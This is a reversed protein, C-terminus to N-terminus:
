TPANSDALAAALRTVGDVLGANDYYAFSLRLHNRLGHRSSFRVGPRFSVKHAAAVALLRESDIARELELWFFYGGDPRRYSIKTGLQKQLAADLTMVRDGYAARLRDLYSDQQGAALVNRVIGSTFPNLGGGSDLMGSTMLRQVHSPATQVWGLRLGPALIKSFSGLSLVTRSASFAALPPPSPAGYSLLHYVEDALILFRYEQSLEVLQRRRELTLTAGSPNQYTPIVYVFAPRQSFLVEELADISLGHEDAPLSVVRLGHDAFIRLALFYSPEEVIIMDGPRSYLTCILDLAQSVGNTVFLSDPDVPAAYRRTLFDALAMRFFGDGQEYGYQLLVPDGQGLRQEAAQRMIELPLLDDAPHGVGFDIVDPSVQGQAVHFNM